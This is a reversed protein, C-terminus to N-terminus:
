LLLLVGKELKGLNIWYKLTFSNKEYWFTSFSDVYFVHMENKHM